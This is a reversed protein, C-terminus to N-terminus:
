AVVDKIHSSKIVRVSDENFKWGFSEWRGGSSYSPEDVRASYCRLKVTAAEGREGFRQCVQDIEGGDVPWANDYRLMDHPFPALGTVTYEIMHFNARKSTM